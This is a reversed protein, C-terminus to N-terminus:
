DLMAPESLGQASSRSKSGHLLRSANGYGLVPRICVQSICIERRIGRNQLKSWDILKSLTAFKLSCFILQQHTPFTPAPTCTFPISLSLYAQGLTHHYTSIKYYLGSYCLSTYPTHQSLLTCTLIRGTPRRYIQVTICLRLLSFVSLQLSDVVVRCLRSRDNSVWVGGSIRDCAIDTM